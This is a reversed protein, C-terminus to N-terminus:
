ETKLKSIIVFGWLLPCFTSLWQGIYILIDGASVWGDKVDFIDALINLHTQDSMVVHGEDDQGNPLLRAVASDRMLVPFTDHNALLVAQNSITGLYGVAYPLLLIWLSAARFIALLKQM